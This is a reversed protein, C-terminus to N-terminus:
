WMEVATLLTTETGQAPYFFFLPFRHGHATGYHGYILVTPAGAAHLWQGYVAPQGKTQLIRVDQSVVSLSM